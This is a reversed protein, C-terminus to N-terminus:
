PEPADTRDVQVPHCTIVARKAVSALNSPTSRTEPERHASDGTKHTEIL